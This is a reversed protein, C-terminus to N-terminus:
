ALLPLSSASLPISSQRRPVIRNPVSPVITPVHDAPVEDMLVPVAIPELLHAATPGVIARPVVQEQGVIRTPVLVAVLTRLVLITAPAVSQM